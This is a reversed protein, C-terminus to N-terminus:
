HAANKGLGAVFPFTQEDGFIDEESKKLKTSKKNDNNDNVMETSDKDIQNSNDLQEASVMQSNILFSFILTFVTTFIFKMNTKYSKKIRNPKKLFTFHKIM